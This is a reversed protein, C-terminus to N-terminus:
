DKLLRQIGRIFNHRFERNRSIRRTLTQFMDEEEDEEAESDWESNDSDEGSYQSDENDPSKKQVEDRPPNESDSFQILQKLKQKTILGTEDLDWPHLVYNGTTAPNGIRVPDGWAGAPPQQCPDLTPAIIPSQGGWQWYSKYFFANNFINSNPIEAIDVVFPSKQVLPIVIEATNKTPHGHQKLYVWCKQKNKMDEPAWVETDTKDEYWWWFYLFNQNFNTWGQGYYYQWYPIDIQTISLQKISTGTGTKQAYGIRNDEGTDWMYKYWGQNNATPVPEIDPLKDPTKTNTTTGLIYWPRNDGQHIFINQLNIMTFGFRLLGAKCWQKMFYWQSNHVSPPAVYVKKARKGGHAISKIIVHKPNLIAIAPHLLEYDTKKLTGYDTRWWFIYDITPHPHLTFRTGFYRALDFGENSTSWINHRLQHEKYLWDLTLHYLTAGGGYLKYYGPTNGVGEVWSQFNTTTNSAPGYFAIGWGKITCLARHKPHWQVIPGVYPRKRFRRRRRWRRVPRPRRWRRVGRFWPRFRRTYRRTYYRRRRPYWRRWYRAM